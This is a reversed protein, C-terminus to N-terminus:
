VDTKRCLGLQCLDKDLIVSTEGALYEPEYAELLFLKNKRYAASRYLLELEDAALFSHLGVLFFVDKRLFERVASIYADLRELLTVAETELRAEAAKLLATGGIQEAFTIHYNTCEALCSLYGQMASLAESTRIFNEENWMQKELFSYLANLIKKQNPDVAMPDTILELRKPASVPVNNEYLGCNSEGDEILILLDSLIQTFAKQNEVVLVAPHNEDFVIPGNLLKHCFNM